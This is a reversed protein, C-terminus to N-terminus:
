GSIIARLRPLRRARSRRTVDKEAAGGSRVGGCADTRSWGYSSRAHRPSNTNQPTSPPYPASLHTTGQPLSPILMGCFITRRSSRASGSSLAACGSLLSTLPRYPWTEDPIQEAPGVQPMRQVRREGVHRDARPAHGRQQVGDAPGLGFRRGVQQHLGAHDRGHGGGEGPQVVPGVGRRPCGPRPQDVGHGVGRRELRYAADVVARARPLPAAALDQPEGPEPHQRGAAVEAAVQAEDLPTLTLRVAQCCPGCSHVGTSASGFQGVALVALRHPRRASGARGCPPVTYASALVQLWMPPGSSSPVIPSPQTVQGHCPLVKRNVSPPMTRPGALM